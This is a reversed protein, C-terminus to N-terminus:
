FFNKRWIYFLNNKKYHNILRFIITKKYIIIICFIKFKKNIFIIQKLLSNYSEVIIYLLKKMKTM